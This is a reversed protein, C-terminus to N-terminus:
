LLTHYSDLTLKAINSWSFDRSMWIRGSHGMEKLRYSPLSMANALALYLHQSTNEIWWGCDYHSLKSWPAGQTVVAPCSNSLAEAVVIGFNESFTPLVFLDSSQYLKIKDDGFVPGYFKLRRLDLLSVRHQLYKFYSPSGTGAIILQWDPFDHELLQWVDILTELGKKPHLRSLFLLSRKSFANGCSMLPPIDIGNPCITTRNIYGLNQIDSAEGESTAHFLSCRDLLKKQFPYLISKGVKRHNLSWKSLTGRPSVVISASVNHPMFGPIINSQAWLSHVHVVDYLKAESLIFKVENPSIGFRRLFPYQGHTVLKYSQSTSKSFVQCSLTVDAGLLSQASALSPVSYSPGSAETVVRPLIHLVKM